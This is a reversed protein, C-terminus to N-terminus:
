CLVQSRLMVTLKNHFFWEVLKNIETQLKPVVEDITRASVDLMTDDAFLTVSEVYSPLDNMFLLFLIPGLVSVQPIGIAVNTFNSLKGNVLTCQSRSSLYSRVWYLTSNRIGYKDIKFLLIEPDITNFCKMLDFFCVGNILGDDINNLWNDTAKHLTTQTSHNKLYASQDVTIFSHEELYSLVQKQICKEMIKAVHCIVSLPRYNGCDDKSGSGKYVPTVRAKKWDVPVVGMRISINFLETLFSVIVFRSVYLLSSDMGLVDNKSKSELLSLYKLVDEETVAVFTFDHISSPGKWLPPSDPITSALQEGINAYYSNMESCTISNSVTSKNKNCRIVDIAKWINGEKVNDGNMMDLVYNDKCTKIDNNIENRLRRYENFSKDDNSDLAKKHLKDRTKMKAVIDSNVWPHTNDKVRFSRFPAHGDCVKNFTDKWALWMDDISNYRSFELKNLETEVDNIFLSEDFNKFTRCTVTEHNHIFKTKICTKILYHDSLCIKVVETDCHAESFSSM